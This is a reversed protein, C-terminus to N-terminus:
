RPSASYTQVNPPAIHLQTTYDDDTPAIERGSQAQQPMYVRQALTSQPSMVPPHHNPVDAACYHWYASANLDAPFEDIYDAHALPTCGDLRGSLTMFQQGAYSHPPYNQLQQQHQVPENSNVFVIPTTCDAAQTPVVFLPSAGASPRESFALRASGRLDAYDSSLSAACLSSTPRRDLSATNAPTANLRATTAPAIQNRQRNATVSMLQVHDNASLHASSSALTTTATNTDRSTDSGASAQQQQASNPVVVRRQSLADASTKRILKPRQDEDSQTDSEVQAVNRSAANNTIRHQQTRSSSCTRFVLCSILMLSSSIAIVVFGLSIIAHRLAGDGKASIYDRVAAYSSSLARSVSVGAASADNPDDENDDEDQEDANASSDRLRKDVLQVHARAGALPEGAKTSEDIVAPPSRGKGNQVFIHVRYSTSPALNTVTFSPEDSSVRRVQRFSSSSTTAIPVQQASAVLDTMLPSSSNLTYLELVYNHRENTTSVAAGGGGSPQCHVSFSSATVSDSFCGIVPEPLESPAIHILCPTRMAGLANSASCQLTGLARRRTRAEYVLHSSTNNLTEFNDLPELDSASSAGSELTSANFSWSFHVDDDPEAIVHCEVRTPQQLAVDYKSRTRTYDCQPEFKPRLELKNSRMRGLANTAVCEYVGRSQLSIRQLALSRHGMIIGASVNEALARENHLWVLPEDVQPNATVNCEMFVDTGLRITDANINSGFRLRLQPAYQVQVVLSDSLVSQASQLRPNHAACTLPQMHDSLQPVFTLYSTIIRAGNTSNKVEISSSSSSDRHTHTESHPIIPQGARSWSVVASPQAGFVRCEVIHKHNLQFTSSNLKNVLQVHTPALNVEFALSSNLPAVHTAQAATCIFESAHLVRTLSLRLTTSTNGGSQAPEETDSHQQVRRWVRVRKLSHQPPPPPTTASASPLTSTFAVLLDRAPSAGEQSTIMMHAATSGGSQLASVDANLESDLQWWVPAAPPQGADHLECALEVRANEDYPGVVIRAGEFVREAATDRIHM